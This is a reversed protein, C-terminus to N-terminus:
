VDHLRIAGTGAMAMRGVVRGSKEKVNRLWRELDKWSWRSTGM